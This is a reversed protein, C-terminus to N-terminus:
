LKGNKKCNLIKRKKPRKKLTSFNSLFQRMYKEIIIKRKSKSLPGFLADRKFKQRKIYYLSKFPSEPCFSAVVPFIFGCTASHPDM